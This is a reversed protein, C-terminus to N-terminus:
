SAHYPSDAGPIIAPEQASRVEILRENCAFRVLEAACRTGTKQMLRSRVFEVTKPELRVRRAIEKTSLGDCLLALVQSERGSLNALGCRGSAIEAVARAVCPSFFRQGHRASTLARKFDHLTACKGLFAAADVQLARQIWGLPAEGAVLIVPVPPKRHAMREALRFVAEHAYGVEAIIVSGPRAAAVALEPTEVRVVRGTQFSRLWAELLEGWGARHTCLIVSPQPKTPVTQRYQLVMTVSGPGTM